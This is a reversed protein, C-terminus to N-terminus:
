RDVSPNQNNSDNTSDDTVNSSDMANAKEKHPELAIKVADVFDQNYQAKEYYYAAGFSNVVAVISGLVLWLLVGLNQFSTGVKFTIFVVALITLVNIVLGLITFLLWIYIKFNKM